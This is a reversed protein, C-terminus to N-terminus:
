RQPTEVEGWREVAGRMKCEGHVCESVNAPEGSFVRLRGGGGWVVEWPVSV